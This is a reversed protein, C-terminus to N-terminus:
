KGKLHDLEPHREYVVSLLRGDITGISLGVGKKILDITQADASQQVIDLAEALAEIARLALDRVRTASDLDM